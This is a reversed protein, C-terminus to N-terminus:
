ESDVDIETVQEGRGFQTQTRKNFSSKYADVGIGHQKLDGFSRRLDNIQRWSEEEVLRSQEQSLELPRKWLSVDGVIIWGKQAPATGVEFMDAVGPMNLSELEKHTVPEWGMRRKKSLNKLDIGETKPNIHRVWKWVFGNDEFWDMLEQPLDTDAPAAYTAYNAKLTKLSAKVHPNANKVM